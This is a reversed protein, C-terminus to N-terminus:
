TGQLSESIVTLVVNEYLRNLVSCSVKPGIRFRGHLGVLFNPEDGVQVKLKGNLVICLRAKNADPRFQHSTGPRIIVDTVALSSSISFNEQAAVSASTALNESDTGVIRGSGVEWDELELLGVNPEVHSTNHVLKTRKPEILAEAASHNMNRRRKTGNGWSLNPFGRDDGLSTGSVIGDDDISSSNTDRVSSRSNFNGMVMGEDADDKGDDGTVSVGKRYNAAAKVNAIWEFRKLSCLQGQKQYICSGCALTQTNMYDLIEPAFTLSASVCNGFPGDGRRCKSCAKTNVNGTAQILLGALQRAQLNRSLTPLKVDRLCHLKLLPQIQLKISDIHDVASSIRKWLKSESVPLTSASPSSPTIKPEAAPTNKTKSDPVAKVWAIKKGNASPYTTILPDAIPEHDMLGQSVVLSAESSRDQELVTFTGDLNDNLLSGRHLSKFHNSFDHQVKFLRRCSRISCIWPRGPVTTDHKYGEPILVGQFTVLDGNGDTWENYPRKANAMTLGKQTTPKPNTKQISAKDPVPLSHRTPRTREQSTSTPPSLEDVSADAPVSKRAGRAEIYQRQKNSNVMRARARELNPEAMPLHRGLARKAVVIPPKPYGGCAVGDGSTATAYKSLETFTGDINDNLRSARHSTNFHKGLGFITVFLERCSRIPCIWPFDPSDFQKYGAPLLAGNTGIENGTEPDKLIRYPKDDLASDFEKQVEPPISATSQTQTVHVRDDSSTISDSIGVANQRTIRSGMTPTSEDATSAAPPGPSPLKQPQQQAPASPPNVVTPSPSTFTGTTPRNSAFSLGPFLGVKGTRKATFRPRVPADTSESASKPSPALQNRQVSPIPTAASPPTPPSKTASNPDM